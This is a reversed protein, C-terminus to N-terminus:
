AYFTTLTPSLDTAKPACHGSFQNSSRLLSGPPWPWDSPSAVSNTCTATSLFGFSNESIRTSQTSFYAKELDIKILSDGREILRFATRVDEMKFHETKFFRNFQKLNLIFRPEEDPKQILFFPSLFQGPTPEVVQIAEIQLLKEIVLEM